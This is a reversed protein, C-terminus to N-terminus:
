GNTIPKLFDLDELAWSSYTTLTICSGLSNKSFMEFGALVHELTENHM